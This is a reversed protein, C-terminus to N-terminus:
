PRSYTGVLQAQALIHEGMEELLEKKTLGPGAGLVVDLAYLKFFYRHTGSPPCPGGYGTKPWSNRGQVGGGALHPEGPVGEALSRAEAPLDYIVWHVWTGIPADPDDMILAFSGTNPPPDGWELPPSIDAGDCTYQAPIAAGDEFAASTPSLASDSTVASEGQPEAGRCGVLVLLCLGALLRQWQCRNM